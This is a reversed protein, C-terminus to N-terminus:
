FLSFHSHETPLTQHWLVNKADKTLLKCVAVRRGPLDVILKNSSSCLFQSTASGDFSQHLQDGARIVEALHPWHFTDNVAHEKHM